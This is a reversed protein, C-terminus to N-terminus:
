ACANLDNFGALRALARGARRGANQSGIDFAVLRGRQATKAAAAEVEEFGEDLLQPGVAAM